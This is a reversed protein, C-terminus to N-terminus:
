SNESLFIKARSQISGAVTAAPKQGAFFGAAEETIINLIDYNLSAMRNVTKLYEIYGDVEEQTLPEVVVEQDGVWYTDPVEVENGNEDIYTYPKMEEEGMKKLASINVPFMWVNDSTQYEETFFGRIFQWAGEKNKSQASISYSTDAELVAGNGESTPYGIYTVPEGFTVGRLHKFDRFGGLYVSQLLVRNERYMSDYKTWYDDDYYSDDLKEPFTNAWELLQIFEQSDFSCTDGHIFQDGVYTMCESLASDRTWSDMLHSEPYEQALKLVDAVTWGPTDGVISTKGALTRVSFSPTMRLLKGDVTFAELVNPMFDERNMEPDQDIWTYLDEFVGKKIYSDFHMLYRDAILIDPTKNAAIDNNLQTLGGEPNASTNYDNYVIIKIRYEDNSKNFKIVNSVMQYDNYMTGLTLVIKEKVDAPDVKTLEQLELSWDETNYSGMLFRGEGAPSIYRMNGGDIDSDVFNLIETYNEDGINYGAIMMNNQLFLDYGVGQMLGFGRDLWSASVPEGFKGTQLDLPALVNWGKEGDFEYYTAYVRGDALAVLNNIWHEKDMEIKNVPQGNEDYVYIFESANALIHGGGCTVGNVYTNEDFDVKWLETGDRDVKAMKTGSTYEEGTQSWTNIIEILNGQGDGILSSINESTVTTSVGPDGGPVDVDGSTEPEGLTETVAGESEQAAGAEETSDEATEEATEDPVEGTKAVPISEEIGPTVGPYKQSSEMHEYIKKMNSGDLDASYIRVGYDWTEEDYISASVYMVDGSIIIDNIEDKEDIDLKMLESGKYIADKNIQTSSDGENKGPNKGPGSSTKDGCGALLGACLTFVLLASILRKLQKKM